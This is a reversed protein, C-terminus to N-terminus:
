KVYHLVMKITLPESVAFVKVIVKLQLLYQLLHTKRFKFILPSGTQLRYMKEVRFALGYHVLSDVKNSLVSLVLFCKKNDAWLSIHRCVANGPWFLECLTAKPTCSEQCGILMM